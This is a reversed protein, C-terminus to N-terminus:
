AVWRQVAIRDPAAGSDLDVILSIEFKRELEPRRIGVIEAPTM